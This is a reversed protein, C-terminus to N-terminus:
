KSKRKHYRKESKERKRSGTATSDQDGSRVVSGSKSYASKVRDLIINGSVSRVVSESGLTVYAENTKVVSSSGSVSIISRDAKVQCVSGRISIDAAVFNALLVDCDVFIEPASLFGKVSALAVTSLRDGSVHQHINGSKTEVFSAHRSYISGSDVTVSSIVNGSIHLSCNDFLNLRRINHNFFVSM